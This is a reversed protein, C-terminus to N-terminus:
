WCCWVTTEFQGWLVTCEIAFIVLCESEMLRPMVSHLPNTSQCAPQMQQHYSAKGSRALGHGCGGQIPLGASCLAMVQMYFLPLWWTLARQRQQIYPELAISSFLEAPDISSLINTCIIIALIMFHVFSVSVMLISHIQCWLCHLSRPSYGHWNPGLSVLGRNRLIVSCLQSQLTANDILVAHRNGNDVKVAAVAGASSLICPM